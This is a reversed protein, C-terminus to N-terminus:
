KHGKNDKGHYAKGNKGAAKKEGYAKDIKSKMASNVPKASQDKRPSKVLDRVLSYTTGHDESERSKVFYYAYGAPKHTALKEDYYRNYLGNATAAVDNDEAALNENVWEQIDSGLYSENGNVVLEM